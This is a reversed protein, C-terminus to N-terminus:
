KVSTLLNAKNTKILQNCGVSWPQHLNGPIAFVDRNYSNAIDATILAGGRDGAEVVILADCMGAIIRNRQPFNHADPSTGLPNESILAGQNVMRHATDKHAGPYIVDLGSGLVAITALDNKLAEKHAHIDIGYALGSIIQPQHLVLSKVLDEVCGKGYDTAKRTGVIGVTRPHNFNTNGKVYLLAPADEVAKLRAPYAADTFLLIHVDNREARAAEQEALRMSRGTRIADATADGIGPIRLLDQRPQRFVDQASGCYAILQRLLVPGIGPIFYLALFSLREPDM